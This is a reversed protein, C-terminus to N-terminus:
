LAAPTQPWTMGQFKGRNISAQFTAGAKPMSRTASIRLLEFARSTLTSELLQLVLAPSTTPSEAVAAAPLLLLFLAGFLRAEITM